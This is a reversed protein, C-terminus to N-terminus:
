RVWGVPLAPLTHTNPPITRSSFSGSRVVAEISQWRGTSIRRPSTLSHAHTLALESRMNSNQRCFLAGFLPRMDLSHPLLSRPNPPLEGPSFHLLIRNSCGRQETSWGGCLQSWAVRERERERGLACTLVSAGFQPFFGSHFSLELYKKKSKPKVFAAVCRMDPEDVITVPSM